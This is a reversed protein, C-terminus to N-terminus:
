EFQEDNEEKLAPTNDGEQGENRYIDHYAHPFLARVFEREDVCGSHDNDFSQFLKLIREDSFGIQMRTLLERFEQSDLEGDSDADSLRFLAPIDHATYGWQRLRERTRQMLLIRDRDEWTHTFAHGIIGIPIAMYLVTIVILVGAILSGAASKPTVDGYGVTTMTVITFWISIPLSKINDRSEVLYILMSFVLAIASLIFILVPLAEAALGFARLILHFKEFRRLTKLLRLIPVVCILIAHPVTSVEGEPLVFGIAARVALPVAALFDILNYACLFFAHRNPCCAFRLLFEIVFISDISTEVVAAPLGRLPRPSLTQVLTTLVTAVIFPPTMRAVLQALRSSEPNDLINWIRETVATRRRRRWTPWPAEVADATASQEGGARSHFSPSTFVDTLQPKSGTRSTPTVPFAVPPPDHIGTASKVSSDISLWSPARGFLPRRPITVNSASIPRPLPPSNGTPEPPPTSLVLGLGMQPARELLNDTSAARRPKKLAAVKAAGTDFRAAHPHSRCRADSRSATGAQSLTRDSSIRNALSDLKSQIKLLEGKVEREVWILLPHQPDVGPLGNDSLLSGSSAPTRLENTLNRMDKRALPENTLNRSERRVPLGLSKLEELVDTNSRMM